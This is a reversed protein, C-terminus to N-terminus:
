WSAGDTLISLDGVCPSVEEETEVPVHPREGHDANILRRVLRAADHTRGCGGVRLHTEWLV